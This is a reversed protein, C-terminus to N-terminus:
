QFDHLLQIDFFVNGEDKGGVVFHDHIICLPEDQQLIATYCVVADFLLDDLNPAKAM